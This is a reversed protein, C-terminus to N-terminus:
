LIRIRQMPKPLRWYYVEGNKVRELGVEIIRRRVHELFKKVRSNTRDLVVISDWYVNLLLPTINKPNLFDKLRMDILTVNDFLDGIYNMVLKYLSRRREIPKDRDLGEYLVLLDIDSREDAEDRAYSGFLLIARVFSPLSDLRLGLIKVVDDRNATM